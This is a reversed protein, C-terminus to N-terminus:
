AVVREELARIEAEVQAKRAVKELQEPEPNKVEGSDLKAELAEIDRLKKRLNRLKKTPDTTEQQSQSAAAPAQQLKPPDVKDASKSGKNKKKKSVATFASSSDPNRNLGPIGASAKLAKVHDFTDIQMNLVAHSLGSISSSSAPGRNLGPIGSGEARAKAFQKGKSEYLPVEEQPVYGEKIRRPKRFTGDPRRTGPLMLHGTEPDRYAGSQETFQQSNSSSM